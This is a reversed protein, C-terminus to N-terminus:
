KFQYQIDPNEKVKQFSEPYNEVFWIMFDTIDIKDSLLFERKDMWKKKLGSIQFLEIAKKLAEDQNKYNFILGYTQELEVFNSM